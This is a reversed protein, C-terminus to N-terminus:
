EAVVKRSLLLFTTCSIQNLSDPELFRTWSFHNVLFFPPKIGYIWMKEPELFTTSWFFIIQTQLVVKRSFHNCFLHDLSTSKNKSEVVKELSPCLNLFFINTKKLFQLCSCIRWLNLKGSKGTTKKANLMTCNKCNRSKLTFFEQNKCKGNQWLNLKRSFIWNTHFM